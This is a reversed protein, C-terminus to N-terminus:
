RCPTGAADRAAPRSDSAQNQRHDRAIERQRQRKREQNQHPSRQQRDQLHWRHLQQALQRQFVVVAEDHREAARAHQLISDHQHQRHGAQHREEAEHDRPDDHAGSQALALQHVHKLMIGCAIGPRAKAKASVMIPRRAPAQTGQSGSLPVSAIMTTASRIVRNGYPVRSAFAANRCTCRSSSSAACILPAPCATM